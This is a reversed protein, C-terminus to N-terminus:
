CFNKIIENRPMCVIDAPSFDLPTFAGCGYKNKLFDFVRVYTAVIKATLLQNSTTKLSFNLNIDNTQTSSLVRGQHAFNKLKELKNKSVFHVKTNQGLFYNPMNTIQECITKHNAKDAVGYVVRKHLNARNKMCFVDNKRMKPPFTLSIADVVGDIKRVAESHGLSIGPGWLTAPNNQTTAFLLTRIISLLGPDWGCSIIAMHHSEKSITDMKELEQLILNHTDFTNIINFHQALEPADFLMDSQSGSCLVCLDIKQKHQLIDKRAFVPTGLASQVNERKSFIGVLNIFSSSLLEKEVAKGLNGYGVIAVNIKM